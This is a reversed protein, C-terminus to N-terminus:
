TGMEELHGIVSGVPLHPNFIVTHFISERHTGYQVSHGLTCQYYSVTSSQVIHEPPKNSETSFVWTRGICVTEHQAQVMVLWRPGMVQPGERCGVAGWLVGGTMWGEARGDYGRTCIWPAWTWTCDIIQQNDQSNSITGWPQLNELLLVYHSSSVEALRQQELRYCVYPSKHAITTGPLSMKPCTLVAGRHGPVVRTDNGALPLWKTIVAAQQCCSWTRDRIELIFCTYKAKTSLPLIELCILIATWFTEPEQNLVKCNIIFQIFHRFWAM